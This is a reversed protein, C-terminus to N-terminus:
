IVDDGKSSHTAVTPTGPLAKNTSTPTGAKSPAPAAAFGQPNASKPEVPAVPSVLVKNVLAKRKPAADDAPDYNEKLLEVWSAHEYVQDGDEDKKTKKKGEKDFKYFVSEEMAFEDGERRRVHDYYGAELAKVKLM